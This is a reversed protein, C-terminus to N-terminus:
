FPLGDDDCPEGGGDPSDTPAEGGAPEMGELPAPVDIKENLSCDQVRIVRMENEVGDKTWQHTEVNGIVNVYMGKRFWKMVRDALFDWAECQHWTTKEHWENDKKSKWSVTTAVAFSCKRGDGKLQKFKPDGGMHGRISHENLHKRM